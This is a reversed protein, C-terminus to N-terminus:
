KEGCGCDGDCCGHGHDHHCDCEEDCCEGHEHHHCGCDCGEDAFEAEAKLYENFVADSISEDTVPEFEDTEEDKEIVKFIVAEDEGFGELQEVPQLLAYFESQYEIVAVVNFDVSKNEEDFLTIVEDDILEVNNDNQNEAM